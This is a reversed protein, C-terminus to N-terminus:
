LFASLPSVHRKDLGRQIRSLWVPRAHGANARAGKVVLTVTRRTTVYRTRKRLTRNLKAARVASRLKRGDARKVRIRVDRDPNAAVRVAAAPHSVVARLKAAPVAATAPKVAAAV